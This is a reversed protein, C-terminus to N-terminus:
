FYSFVYLFIYVYIWVVDVFHWYWSATIFGTFLKTAYFYSSHGGSKILIKFLGKAISMNSKSIYYFVPQYRLFCIYIFITGVIVHFGHLGTIMFFTSGYIGDAISFPAYYFEQFQIYIFILALLITIGIGEKAYYYKHRLSMYMHAYTITLGSTLLIGTNALPLTLPNFVVIAFPPWVGGVWISPSLANYFYAWFFGFFFMVESVIFLAFGIKLGRKVVKNHFLLFSEYIVNRWWRAMLLTTTILFFVMLNFGHFNLYIQQHLYIVVGFVLGLISFSLLFPLPSPDVLHYPHRKKLNYM